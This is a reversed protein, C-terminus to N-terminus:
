IAYNQVLCKAPEAELDKGYRSRQKEDLMSQLGHPDNQTDVTSDNNEPVHVRTHCFGVLFV